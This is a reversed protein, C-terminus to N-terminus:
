LARCVAYKSFATAQRSNVQIADAIVRPLFDDYKVEFIIIKSVKRCPLQPNLFQAVNSSTLIDKDITLRVNGAPYEFACRTYDVISKPRLLQTHMKVYLELFLPNSSEKLFKLNGNLLMQCQEKSIVTSQKLCLGSRKSKKELRIFSTDDNYYRIRFKERDQVGDVKERLAKDYLNDFYLSRVKYSGDPSANEDYKTLYKLRSVLELYDFYNIYHKIEHRFKQEKLKMGGEVM